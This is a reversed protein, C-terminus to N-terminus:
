QQSACLLRVRTSSNSISVIPLVTHMGTVYSPDRVLALASPDLDYIVVTNVDLAEVIRNMGNEIRVHRSRANTRLRHLMINAYECSILQTGIMYTDLDVPDESVLRQESLSADYALMELGVLESGLPIRRLTVLEITRRISDHDFTASAGAARDTDTKRLYKQFTRSMLPETGGIALCEGDATFFAPFAHGALLLRPSYALEGPHMRNLCESAVRGAYRGSLYRVEHICLMYEYIDGPHHAVFALSLTVEICTSEPPGVHMRQPAEYRHTTTILWTGSMSDAVAIVEPSYTTSTSPPVVSPSRALWYLSSVLVVIALTVQNMISCRMRTSSYPWESASM